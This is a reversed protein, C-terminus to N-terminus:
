FPLIVPNFVDALILAGAMVVLCLVVLLTGPVLRSADVPPPPPRRFVRAFLRRAGDWLAVLIHGGDLPLLPILNFVFLAINLAGLLSVMSAVRSLVPADTAALEGALRGAGVPSLPGDADRAEGTFVSAAAEYVMVPLQVMVGAVTGLHDIAAAPGEWIPATVYSVEATMGILGVPAADTGDGTAVAVPTITLLVDEGGRAVLIDLPVGASSQIIALAEDFTAIPTGNIAVLEDGALLGGEAAPSPDAGDACESASEASLCPAVSAVTTTVTQFGIGTFLVAFLVMALLLNMLPGGFMIVVRKWVPLGYYTRGAEVGEMTEANAVRAEQVLATFLRGPARRRGTGEGDSSPAPPYMGAMSIFGGLPLAKVGYETEGRRRSWLTPGLGVMYQGVRVGFLKAPALHGVEHLAVSALLGVVLVVVGIVFALVSVGGRYGRSTHALRPRRAPGLM